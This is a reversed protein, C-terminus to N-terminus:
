LNSLELAISTIPIRNQMIHTRHKPKGHNV